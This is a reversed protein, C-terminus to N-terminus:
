APIGSKSEEKLLEEMEKIENKDFLDYTLDKMEPNNKKILELKWEKNWRKLRKERKIALYVDSFHEYYVLKFTKYKKSFGDLIKLKHEVIRRLLNNTFGTYFVTNTKNTLIYVYYSYIKEM